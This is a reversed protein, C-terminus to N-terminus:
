KLRFLFMAKPAPVSSEDFGALVFVVCSSECIVTALGIVSFGGALSDTACSSSFGEVLVSTFVSSSITGKTSDFAGNTSTSAEAFSSGSATLPSSTFNFLSLNLLLPSLM